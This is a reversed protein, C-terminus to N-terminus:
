KKVVDGSGSIKKEVRAGGKYYVNGSGKLNANLIKSVTLEADGSGSIDVIAQQTELGFSKVDGSGAIVIKYNMSKGKEVSINGSGRTTANFYEMGLFNGKAIINGSGNTTIAQLAPMTIYVESNDNGINSNSKFRIYLIGNEVKTELYPVINEYGKVKVEFVSGQTIYVESSGSAEVSYFNNVNREETIIEGEGKIKDKKCSVLVVSFILGLFLAKKM